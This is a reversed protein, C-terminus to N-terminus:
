AQTFIGPLPRRNKEVNAILRHVTGVVLNKTHRREPAVDGVQLPGVLGQSHVLTDDRLHTVSDENDIALEQVLQGILAVREPITM